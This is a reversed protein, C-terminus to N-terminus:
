NESQISIERDNSESVIECRSTRIISGVGGESDLALSALRAYNSTRGMESPIKATFLQVTPFEEFSRESLGFARLECRSCSAATLLFINQTNPTAM